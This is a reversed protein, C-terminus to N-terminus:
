DLCVVEFVVWRQVYVLANGKVLQEHQLYDTFICAGAWTFASQFGAGRRRFQLCYTDTPEM